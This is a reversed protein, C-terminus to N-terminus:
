SKGLRTFSEYKKQWQAYHAVIPRLDMEVTFPHTAFANDKYYPNAPQVGNQLLVTQGGKGQLMWDYFLLAAAPHALRYSVGIGQPREIM